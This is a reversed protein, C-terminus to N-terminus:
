QDDAGAGDTALERGQQAVDAAVHRQDLRQRADQGADVDLRGVDHGPREPLPAHAQVRAHADGADVARALQGHAVVRGFARLLDDDVLDDDADAALRAGLPDVEFARPDLDVFAAEDADVAEHPRRHGAHVGDAVHDVRGLERVDPEGLRDDGDLRDEALLRRRDVVLLDRPPDVAMGFDREGPVGLLVCALEAVVDHRLHLAEAPVAPREDDALGVAQHLDDGLAVARHEADVDGAGPRGLEELLAVEGDVPLRARGLHPRENMRVRREALQEALRRQREGTSAQVGSSPPGRTSMWIGCSPSVTVSPVIVRQSFFTPSWTSASSGSNSTEVSLTSESTGAGVAPVSLSIRTWSPSVASTPVRRATM